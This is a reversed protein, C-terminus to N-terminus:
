LSATKILAREILLWPDAVSSKLGADADAYVAIIKRAGSRGLRKAHSSLKSLAYPHAGIDAAVQTSPKDGVALVALQFVQSSLLGFTMYPDQTRQLSRIMQAVSRGNGRLALDLLNFVNDYPTAEVILEITEVTVSDMVALKEIAHFLAWQDTGAREVLVRACKKDLDFKQRKAEAIAWAEVAPIDRDSWVTFEKVVADKKLEKYTRTRKDPKPEVLVLHIDDSVRPLWEPLVDWLVRNESLGNIVILRKNSFFTASSLLDPLFSIDLQGGDFKEPHGDFASVIDDLTRKLEFSNEGTLLTIM